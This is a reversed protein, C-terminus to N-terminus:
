RARRNPEYACFTGTRVTRELHRGIEADLEGIRKIAERLRRQATVRAREAASGARRTRGGLGVARSLERTLSELEMRAREAGEVDGREDSDGIQETLQEIRRRYARKAQEDLMEGADTESPREADDTGSVLELCHVEEGARELLRALMGLGRRDELVLAGGDRELRWGGPQAVLAFRPTEPSAKPAAPPANAPGLAREAREALGVMNLERALAASRELMERGAGADAARSLLSQGYWLRVWAEHARAGMLLTRELAQEFSASTEEPEGLANGVMAIVARIPVGSALGFFGVTHNSEIHRQLRARSSRAVELDGVMVATEAAVGLMNNSGLHEFRSGVARRLQARAADLFGARALSQARYMEGFGAVVGQLRRLLEPEHARMDEARDQLALTLQRHVAVTRLPIDDGTAAALEKAEAYAADCVDFRGEMMARMSRFLPTMWRFRVHQLSAALADRELLVADALSVDGAELHDTVLRSLGRLELVRDGEARARRVLETNVPIREQPVAFDGFASGAAVAVELVAREDASGAITALAQRAIALTEEPDIAPTLASAKRALLRARLSIEGAPLRSLAEDIGSILEPRIAGFVYVSGRGLMSRAFLTPSNLRRALVIAEDFTRELAGANGLDGYAWGLALLLEARREDGLFLARLARELLAVGEEYARQARAQQAAAVVWQAVREPQEPAELAHHARARAFEDRGSRIWEDFVQALRAHLERRREPTLEEELADRVLAHSFSWRDKPLPLWLGANGLKLGLLRVDAAARGLVSALLELPVERGIIAGAELAEREAPGLRRLRERVVLAVGEAIPVQGAPGQEWGRGASVDRLTEALFLPNGSTSHFLSEIQAADAGPVSRRVLAGAEELSLRRLALTSARRMLRALADRSPADRAEADRSTMVWAWRSGSLAATAFVALEVSSVDAAHLDELVCLTPQRQSHERLVRVVADFLEFRAQGPDSTSFDGSRQHGWLLALPGQPASQALAPQMSELLQRWPWYAPAGGTEWARGWHVAFGVSAAREALETALRTKGIGPEGVLAYACGRGGLAGALGASVAEMEAARGILTELPQPTTM